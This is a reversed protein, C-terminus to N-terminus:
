EQLSTVSFMIRLRKLQCRWFRARFCPRGRVLPQSCASGTSSPIPISRGRAFRRRDGVGTRGLRRSDSSCEPRGTTSGQVDGVLDRILNDGDIRVHLPHAKFWALEGRGGGLAAYVDFRNPAVLGQGRRRAHGVPRRAHQRRRRRDVGPGPGRRIDDGHRAVAPAGSLDTRCLRSASPPRVAIISGAPASACRMPWPPSSRM